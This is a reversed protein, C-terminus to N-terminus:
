AAGATKTALIDRLSQALEREDELDPETVRIV